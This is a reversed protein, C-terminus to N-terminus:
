DRLPLAEPAPNFAMEDAYGIQPSTIVTGAVMDGSSNFTSPSVRVVQGAKGPMWAGGGGDFALGELLALVSGELVVDPPQITDSVALAAKPVKVLDTGAFYGIWLNGAADFALCSPTRYPGIVPPGSM